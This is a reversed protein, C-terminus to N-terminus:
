RSRSLRLGCGKARATLDRALRRLYTADLGEETILREAVGEAEEAVRECLAGLEELTSKPLRSRGIEREWAARDIDDLATTGGIAM